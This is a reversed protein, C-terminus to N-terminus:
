QANVYKKAIEYDVDYYDKGDFYKAKKADIMLLIVVIDNNIGIEKCFMNREEQRLLKGVM